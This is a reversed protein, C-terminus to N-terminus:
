SFGLFNKEDVSSLIGRTKFDIELSNMAIFKINENDNNLMKILHCIRRTRYVVSPKRIGIGGFQKKLFMTKVTTSHTLDFVRQLFSALAKDFELLKEDRIYTNPFHHQIKSMAACEIAEIKLSSPLPFCPGLVARCHMGSLLAMSSRRGVLVVAWKQGSHLAMCKCKHECLFRVTSVTGEAWLYKYKNGERPTQLQM